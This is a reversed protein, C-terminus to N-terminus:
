SPSTMWFVTDEQPLLNNPTSYLCQLYFVKELVGMVYKPLPQKTSYGSDFLFYLNICVIYLLAFINNLVVPLSVSLPFPM